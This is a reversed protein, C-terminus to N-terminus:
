PLLSTASLESFEQGFLRRRLLSPPGDTLFQQLRAVSLLVTSGIETLLQGATAYQNRNTAQEEVDAAVEPPTAAACSTAAAASQNVSTEPRKDDVDYTANKAPVYYDSSKSSTSREPSWSEKKRSCSSAQRPSTVLQHHQFSIRREGDKDANM